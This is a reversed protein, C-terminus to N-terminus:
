NVVVTVLPVTADTPSVLQTPWSTYPTRGAVEFRWAQAYPIAVRLRGTLDTTGLTLVSGGACGDDPDHHATVTEGPILINNADTVLIDVTALTVTGATTAGPTVMMAPQRQGGPYIPDSGGAFTAEPDADACEGGWAQYGDAYPFLDNVTRAAGSGPFMQTGAPLLHTNGLTVAVGAPVTGGQAGDLTLSLTAARDYDFQVSSTTGITVTVPQNPTPNGQGDVYGATGLAVDYAGPDLFPFFACGDSTTTQSQIAGGTLQVVHGAAPLADRDLVKVSVHGTYRDYTGVSPTLITQSEVPKTGSMRPWTVNVSVRLFALQSGSVGDCPSTTASRSIWATERNVDYPIGDVSISSTVLGLPLTDFDTSRVVDMERSALHAAVTRHRNNRTIDLATTLTGAVSAAMVAFVAVAMMVEVVSFGSEGALHRRRSRNILNIKTHM